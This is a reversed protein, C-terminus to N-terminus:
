FNFNGKLRYYCVKLVYENELKEGELNDRPISMEGGRDWDCFELYPCDCPM